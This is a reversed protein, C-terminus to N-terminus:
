LLSKFPKQPQLFTRLPVLSCIGSLVVNGLLGGAGLRATAMNYSIRQHQPNSNLGLSFLPSDPRSLLDSSFVSFAFLDAVLRSLVVPPAFFSEPSCNCRSPSFFFSSMKLANKEGGTACKRAGSIKMRRSFNVAAPTAARVLSM